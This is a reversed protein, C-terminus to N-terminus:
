FAEEGVANDRHIQVGALILTVDADYHTSFADDLWQWQEDGLRDHTNKDFDFRNDLLIIHTKFGDEREIV